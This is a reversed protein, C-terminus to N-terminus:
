MPLGFRRLRNLRKGQLAGLEGAHATNRAEGVLSFTTPGEPWAPRANRATRSLRGSGNRAARGFAALAPPLLMALARLMTSAVPLFVSTRGKRKRRFRLWSDLNGPYLSFHLTLHGGFFDVFLKEKNV